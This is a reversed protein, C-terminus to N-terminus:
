DLIFDPELIRPCYSIIIGFYHRALTQFLWEGSNKLLDNADLKTYNRKQFLHDLNWNEEGPIVQVKLIAYFKNQEPYFRFVLARGGLPNRITFHMWDESGSGTESDLKYLEWDLENSNGFFERFCSDFSEHFESTPNMSIPFFLM